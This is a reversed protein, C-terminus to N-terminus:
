LAATVEVLFGTRNKTITLLTFFSYESKGGGVERSLQLDTLASVSEIIGNLANLTDYRERTKMLSNQFRHQKAQLTGYEGRLDYTKPLSKKKGMKAAVESTDLSSMKLEAIIAGKMQSICVELAQLVGM